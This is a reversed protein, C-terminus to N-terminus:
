SSGKFAYTTGEASNFITDIAADTCLEADDGDDTPPVETSPKKGSGASTNDDETGNGESDDKNGYLAQDIAFIILEFGRLYCVIIM